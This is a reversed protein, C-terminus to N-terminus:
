ATEASPHHASATGGKFRLSAYSVYMLGAYPIERLLVGVADYGHM